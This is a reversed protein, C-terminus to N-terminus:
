FIKMFTNSIKFWHKINANNVMCFGHHAQPIIFSIKSLRKSSAKDKVRQFRATEFRNEFAFCRYINATYAIYM